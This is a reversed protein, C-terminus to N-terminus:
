EGRNNLTENLAKLQDTKTKEAQARSNAAYNEAQAMDRTMAARKAEMEVAAAEQEAQAAAAEQEERARIEDPTLAVQQPDLDLLEALGRFIFDLKLYKYAEPHAMAVNLFQLMSNLRTVRNQFTSFGKVVVEYDGKGADVEPDLMNYFYLWTLADVVSSDFNRVVRAFYKGSGELRRSMSFATEARSAEQGQQIRPVNSDDELYQAVVSLTNLLGTSVDPFIVGQIAQRVDQCEPDIRVVKGPKPNKLPEELLEEKVAVMSNGSLNMNDVLARFVGNLIHQTDVCNDAVSTSWVSDLSDDWEVSFVAHGLVEDAPAIRLITLDKGGLEVYVETEDNEDVGELDFPEADMGHSSLFDKLEKSCVRGWMKVHKLNRMTTQISDVKPSSTESTDQTSEKAEKLVKDVADPVRWPDDGKKLRAMDYKDVFTRHFIGKGERPNEAELDWFVDWTSMVTWSPSTLREEYREFVEMEITETGPVRRWGGKVWDELSVYFFGRGYVAASLALSILKRDAKARELQDDMLAKMVEIDDDLSDEPLGQKELMEKEVASAELAYNIKGNQVLVDNIIAVAAMVKQKTAGLYADSRWDDGEGTKWSKSPDSIRHFANYADLWKDELSQARNNSYTQFLEAIEKELGKKENAM